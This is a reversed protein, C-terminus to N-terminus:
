KTINTGFFINLYNNILTEIFNNLTIFYTLWLLREVLLDVLHASWTCFFFIGIALLCGIKLILFVQPLQLCFFLSFIIEPFFASFCFYLLVLDSLYRELNKTLLSNQDFCVILVCLFQSREGFKQIISWLSCFFVFLCFIAFKAALEGLPKSFSRIVQYVIHLGLFRQSLM